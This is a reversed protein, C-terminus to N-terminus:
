DQKFAEKVSMGEPTKWFAWGSRRVGSTKEAAASLSDFQEGNLKYCDKCVTLMSIGSKTSEGFLPMGIPIGDKNLGTLLKVNRKPKNHDININKLLERTMQELTEVRDEMTVPKEVVAFGSSGLAVKKGM